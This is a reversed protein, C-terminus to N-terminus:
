KETFAQSFSETLPALLYSAFTWSERQLFVDGNMGSTVLPSGKSNKLVEDFKVSVNFYQQLTNPDTTTDAAIFTVKGSLADFIRPNLATIKIDADQGVWVQSIDQPMIRVRMELAAGNPVIEAIIEGPKAVGGVTTLASRLLIGDAPAKIESNEVAAKVAKYQDRIEGLAGLVETLRSSTSKEDSHRVRDFQAIVEDIENNTSNYQARMSALESKSTLLRTEIEWSQQRAIHGGRALSRASAHQKQLISVQKSVSVIRRKLGEQRNELAMSRQSLADLEARIAQRGTEFERAQEKLVANVIDFGGDVNSHFGANKLSSFHGSTVGRLQFSPISDLPQDFSYNKEAELRTKLALLTSQKVRLRTLEAQDTAPDLQFLVQGTKVRDGERAMIALVVGGNRHQIVKNKGISVAVGQAVIASGLPALVAWAVFLASAGFIFKKGKGVLDVPDTKIEAFWSPQNNDIKKIM